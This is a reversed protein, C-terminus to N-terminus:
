GNIKVGSTKYSEFRVLLESVMMDVKTLADLDQFYHELHLKIVERPSAHGDTSILAMSILNAAAEVTGLSAIPQGVLNLYIVFPFGVDMGQSFFDDMLLTAKVAKDRLFNKFTKYTAILTQRHLMDQEGHQVKFALAETSLEIIKAITRRSVDHIDVLWEEPPADGAVSLMEALLEVPELELTAKELIKQPDEFHEIAHVTKLLRTLHEVRIEDAPVVGLLKIVNILWDQTTAYINQLTEGQDLESDVMLIQVFDDQYHEVGLLDLAAHAERIMQVFDPSAADNLYTQLIDLM